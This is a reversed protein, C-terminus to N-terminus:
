VQFWAADMSLLENAFAPPPEEPRLPSLAQSHAFSPYRSIVNEINLYCSNLNENVIVKWEVGFKAWSLWNQV